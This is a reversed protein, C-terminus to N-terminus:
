SAFKFVSKGEMWAPPKLGFLQLATPALDEQGVHAGAARSLVAVDVRDNVLIRVGPWARARAVVADCLELFPGSALQKARLQILTAGGALFADALALPAWGAAGAVDVDLIAHLPPFPSADPM